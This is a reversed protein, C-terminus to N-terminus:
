LPGIGVKMAASYTGAGNLDSFDILVTPNSPLSPRAITRRNFVRAQEGGDFPVDTPIIIRNLAIAEQRVEGKEVPKRPLPQPCRSCSPPDVAAQPIGNDDSILPQGIRHHIELHNRLALRGAIQYASRCDGFLSPTAVM